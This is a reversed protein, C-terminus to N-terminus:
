RDLCTGARNSQHLRNQGLSQLVVVIHVSWFDSKTPREEVVTAEKVPLSELLSVVGLLMGKCHVNKALAM